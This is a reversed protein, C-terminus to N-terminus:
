ATLGSLDIKYKPSGNSRYIGWHRAYTANKLKHEDALAHINVEIPVGPRMPTGKNSTVWPLLHKYFREANAATAGPYGDTPWGLMSFHVKIDSANLKKLAWLYCDYRWEVMNSYVVGGVDHVVVRTNDPFAFEISMNLSEVNILPTHEVLFPANNERLFEVFEMMEPKIEDLFECESPRTVNKKTQEGDNLFNAKIHGVERENLAEQMWHLAKMASALFSKNSSGMYFVHDNFYVSRAM